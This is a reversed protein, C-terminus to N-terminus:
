APQITQQKEQVEKTTQAKTEKSVITVEQSATNSTQQNNEAGDVVKSNGLGDKRRHDDGVQAKKGGPVTKDGVPVKKRGLVTQETTNRSLLYVIIITTLLGLVGAGSGFLITRQRKTLNWKKKM